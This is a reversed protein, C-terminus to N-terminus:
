DLQKGCNACFVAGKRLEVGCNVCFKENQTSTILEYGCNACYRIDLPYPSLDIECAPCVSTIDSIIEKFTLQNILEVFEPFDSQVKSSFDIKDCYKFWNEVYKEEYKKVKKQSVEPRKMDRHKLTRWLARKGKWDTTEIAISYYQHIFDGLTTKPLTASWKIIELEVVRRREPFESIHSNAKWFKSYTRFLEDLLPDAKILILSSVLLKGKYHFNILNLFKLFPFISYKSNFLFSPFIIQLDFPYTTEKFYLAPILIVDGRLTVSTLAYIKAINNM